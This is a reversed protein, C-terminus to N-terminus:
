NLKYSYLCTRKLSPAILNGAWVGLTLGVIPVFVDAHHDIHIAVVAAGALLSLSDPLKVGLRREIFGQSCGDDGTHQHSHRPTTQKPMCIGILSGIAFAPIFLQQATIAAFIGLAIVSIKEIMRFITDQNKENFIESFSTQYLKSTWQRIAACTTM